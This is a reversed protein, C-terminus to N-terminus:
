QVMGRRAALAYGRLSEGDEDPLRDPFHRKIYTDVISEVRAAHEAYRHGLGHLAAEQCAVNDLALTRELVRLIDSELDAAHPDIRPGPDVLEENPLIFDEEPKPGAHGRLPCVDWWMYCPGNLPNIPPDSGRRTHSLQPSCRPNFMGEFVVYMADIARHREAWPVDPDMLPFMYSSLANNILYGLGQAAQDDSYLRLLSPASEFLQALYRVTAAPDASPDWGPHDTHWYWADGSDTPVLRDFIYRLWDDFGPVTPREPPPTATSTGSRVTREGFPEIWFGENGALLMYSDTYESPKESEYWFGLARTRWQERVYDHAEEVSTFLQRVRLQRPGRRITIQFLRPTEM